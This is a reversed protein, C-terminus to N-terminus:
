KTAAHEASSAPGAAGGLSAQLAQADKLHQEVTRRMKRLSEALEPNVAAPLLKADLLDLVQQHANVQNSVYAADFGSADAKKLADLAQDTDTKLSAATASESPTLTLRKYLKEQEQKASTHEKVMMAAFKKVSAQKARGQAIKGQEIEAANALDTLKAIQAESLTERAPAPSTVPEAARAQENPVAADPVTPATPSNTSAPQAPVPPPPPLAEGESVAEATPARKQDSACGAGLVLTLMATVVVPVGGCLGPKTM